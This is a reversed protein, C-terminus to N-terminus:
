HLTNQVDISSGSGALYDNLSQALLWSTEVLEDVGGPQVLQHAFYRAIAREHRRCSGIMFILLVEDVSLCKCQPEHHYIDRNPHTRLTDFMTILNSLANKGNTPGLERLFRDWVANIHPKDPNRSGIAWCRFAWVFFKETPEIDDLGNPWVTSDAFNYNTAM